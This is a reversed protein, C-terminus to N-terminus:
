LWCWVANVLRYLLWGISLVLLIIGVPFVWEDKTDDAVVDSMSDAFGWLFLFAGVFLGFIALITLISM